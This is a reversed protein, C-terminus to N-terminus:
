GWRASVLYISVWILWKFLFGFLPFLFRFTMQFFTLSHHSSSRTLVFKIITESFQLVNLLPINVPLIRHGCPFLWSFCSVLDIPLFLKTPCPLYKKIMLSSVSFNGTSPLLTKKIRLCKIYKIVLLGLQILFKGSKLHYAPCCISEFNEHLEDPQASGKIYMNAKQAAM